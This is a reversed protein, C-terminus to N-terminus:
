GSIRLQDPRDSVIQQGHTGNTLAVEGSDIVGFTRHTGRQVFIPAECPPHPELFEGALYRHFVVQAIQLRSLSIFM